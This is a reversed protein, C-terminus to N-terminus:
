LTQPLATLEGDPDPASSSGFNFITCKLRLIQCRTAVIKIIKTLVLQSLEHFIAGIMWHISHANTCFIDVGFFYPFLVYPTREVESLLPSIDKDVWPHKGIRLQMSATSRSLFWNVIGDHSTRTTTNASHDISTQQVYGRKMRLPVNDTAVLGCNTKNINKHTENGSPLNNM